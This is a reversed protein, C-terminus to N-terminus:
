QEGYDFVLDTGELKERILVDLKASQEDTFYNRWDGVVGKRMFPTAGETHYEAMWGNNATPNLKMAAFKTQEVIKQIIDESLRYGLYDAITNVTAKPDKKMQEFSLILINDADTNQAYEYYSNILHILM